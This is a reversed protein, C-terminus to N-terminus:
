KGRDDNCCPGESQEVVDSGDAERMYEMEESNHGQNCERDPCMAPRLATETM